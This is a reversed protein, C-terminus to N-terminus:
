LQVHQTADKYNRTQLCVVLSVFMKDRERERERDFTATTGTSHATTHQTAVSFSENASRM